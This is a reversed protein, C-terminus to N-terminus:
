KLIKAVKKKVADAQVRMGLDSPHIVDVWDDSRMGIEEQTLYHLNKVGKKKLDKFVRENVRKLKAVNNKRISDTEMNSFGIHDVLLIPTDDKKRLRDVANRLLNEVDDEGVQDLNPMCDLIIMRSDIENILDLVESELRGNGSFGLNVLPIGLERQVINTWCTGPRSACAGHAISTGYVVIPTENVVPLFTLKNGEHVGVELWEVTNYLPLYLRFEYPVGKHQEPVTNRFTYSVTDGFSWSGVCRDARGNNGIRYLDVGSVGTAPMHSMAKSGTVVYRVTFQDADSRFYVALGASNRSLDWVPKRVKEKARDPLRYYTKGIEDVYAQNQVTPFGADMPNYWQWKAAQAMLGVAILCITLITKNM